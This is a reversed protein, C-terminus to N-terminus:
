SIFDGKISEVKALRMIKKFKTQSDKGEFMIKHPPIGKGRINNDVKERSKIKGDLLDKVLDKNKVIGFFTVYNYLMM